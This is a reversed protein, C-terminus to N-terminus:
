IQVKKIHLGLQILSFQLSLDFVPFLRIEELFLIRIEPTVTCM